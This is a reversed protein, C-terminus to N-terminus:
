AQFKWRPHRDGQRLDEDSDHFDAKEPHDVLYQEKQRNEKNLIVWLTTVVVINM